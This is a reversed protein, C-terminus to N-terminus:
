PSVGIAMVRKDESLLMFVMVNRWRISTACIGRGLM